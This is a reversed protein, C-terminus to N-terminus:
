LWKNLELTIYGLYGFIIVLTILLLSEIMDLLGANKEIRSKYNQVRQRLHSM